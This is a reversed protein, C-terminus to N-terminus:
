TIKTHRHIYYACVLEVVLDGINMAVEFLLKLVLNLIHFLSRACGCRAGRIYVRMSYVCGCTCSSLTSLVLSLLFLSLSLSFHILSLSHLSLSLVLVCPAHVCLCVVSQGSVSLHVVSSNLWVLGWAELCVLSTAGVHVNLVYRVHCPWQCLSQSNWKM